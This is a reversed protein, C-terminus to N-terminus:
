WCDHGQLGSFQVFRASGIAGVPKGRWESGHTHACDEILHLGFEREISQMEDLDAIQSYLHVPIIAKTRPTIKHRVDDPDLCWDSRRIDAFVPTAGVQLPAWATALWTLAPVIVEDGPGIHLAKLILELSVSGNSVCIAHRAGCFAAFQRSFEEGQPGEGGWHGSELAKMLGEREM